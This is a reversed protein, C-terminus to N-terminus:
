WLEIENLLFLMGQYSATNKGFIDSATGHDVSVRKFPMGLTLNIGVLGNKLKFPALGQDHFAYVFLQKKNSYKFHLTDGAFPGHFKINKFELSLLNIVETLVKDSEGIIGSEGCHPNIGSFYVNNILRENPFNILSTRVKDIINQLELEKEVMGISIHDSLLLVSETASIFNMTLNKQHFYRRFFETHGALNEDNLFFESKNSPLTLFIDNKTISKMIINMSTTTIPENTEEFFTCRLKQSSFKVSNELLEYSLNMSCLTKELSSVPVVLNFKNQYNNNLCLFSKLFVELGIGKEYGCSVYIM